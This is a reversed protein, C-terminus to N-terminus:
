CVTCWFSFANLHLRSISLIFVSLSHITNTNFIWCHSLDEHMCLIVKPTNIETNLHYSKSWSHVEHLCPKPCRWYAWHNKRLFFVLWSNYVCMWRWYLLARLSFLFTACVFIVLYCIFYVLAIVRLSFLLLMLYAYTSNRCVKVKRCSRISSSFTNLNDMLQPNCFVFWLEKSFVNWLYKSQWFTM